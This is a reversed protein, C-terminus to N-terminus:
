MTVSIMLYLLSAFNVSMNNEYTMLLFNVEPEPVLNGPPMKVGNMRAARELTRTAKEPHGSALDFRPSEPLWQIIEFYNIASIIM